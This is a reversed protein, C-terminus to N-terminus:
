RFRLSFFFSAREGMAAGQLVALRGFLLTIFIHNV